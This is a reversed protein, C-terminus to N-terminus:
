MQQLMIQVIQWHQNKKETCLRDKIHMNTCTHTYRSVKPQEQSILIGLLPHPQLISTGQLVVEEPVPDTCGYIIFLGPTLKVFTVKCQALWVASTVM